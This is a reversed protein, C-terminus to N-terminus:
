KEDLLNAWFSILDWFALAAASHDVEAHTILPTALQHVRGGRARISNALLKSEVAPIVNDDIGHLLYVPAAPPPAKEPSLAVDGGMAVAHRALIPGLSAVDRENVYAMLLRSPEPLLDAMNKARAFEIQAQPKDVMAVHSAHLFAQIADRLAPAQDDPVVRDAVGLLIIAVGYDHPPRVEGDPEVGTCLYRLTRSLEGHGGFSMVFAV